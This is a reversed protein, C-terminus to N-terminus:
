SFRGTIQLHSLVPESVGIGAIDPDMPDEVYSTLHNPDATWLDAHSNYGCPVGCALISMM